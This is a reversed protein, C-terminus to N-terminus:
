TGRYVGLWGLKDDDPTTAGPNGFIFINPGGGIPFALGLVRLAFNDLMLIYSATAGTGFMRLEYARAGVKVVGEVSFLDNGGGSVGPFKLWVQSRARAGPSWTLLMRITLGANAAFEGLTGLNLEFDLGYWLAPAIPEATMPASVPVYGEKRPGEGGANRSFSLMRMPFKAILSGARLPSSAPALDFTVRTTTFAFTPAGAVNNSDITFAMDIALGEFALRDYSLMDFDGSSGELKKFAIAGHLGFACAMRTGGNNPLATRNVAFDSKRIEVSEIVKGDLMFRKGGEELLFSYSAVGGRMERQGTLRIASSTAGTNGIVTTVREDFLQNITLDAGCKFEKLNGNDFWVRFERVAFGFPITAPPAAQTPVPQRYDILGFTSCDRPVVVGTAPDIELTSAEVAIHHAVFLADDVGARLVALEAPMQRGVNVNLALVGTWGPDDVLRMFRAYAPHEAARLGTQDIFDALRTALAALRGNGYRDFREANTWSKPKGIRQRISGPGFKFIVTNNLDRFDGAVLTTAAGAQFGNAAPDLEFTWDGMKVCMTADTYTGVLSEATTVVLFLSNSQFAAQLTPNLCVFGITTGAHNRALVLSTWAAGLMDLQMGQRTVAPASPIEPAEPLEGGNGLIEGILRRRWPAVIEGEFRALFTARWERPIERPAAGALPVMPFCSEPTPLPLTAAIPEFLELIAGAPANFFPANEPQSFYVSGGTGTARIFSVWSTRYRDTLLTLDVDTGANFAGPGRTPSVIPFEPAFAPRGPVFVMRDGAAGNRPPRIEVSEVGSLGCLLKSPFEADGREYDLPIGADDILIVTFEGSPALYYCRDGGVSRLVEFVLRPPRAAGPCPALAVIEGTVTRFFTRLYEQRPPTTVAYYCDGCGNPELIISQGLFELYSREPELPALPNWLMRFLVLRDDRLDFIPYFQHAEAAGIAAVYHLGVNWSTSATSYLDGIMGIGEFAGPEAGALWLFLAHDRDGAADPADPPCREPLPTPPMFSFRIDELGFPELPPIVTYDVVMGVGIPLHYGGFDIIVESVVVVPDPPPDDSPDVPPPDGSPPLEGSSGGEPPDEAGGPDSPLSRTRVCAIPLATAEDTIDGPIYAIWLFSTHEIYYDSGEANAGLLRGIADAVDPLESEPLTGAYSRVFLYYGVRTAWSSELTLEEDGGAVDYFGVFGDEGVWELRYLPTDGIQTFTSMSTTTTTSLSQPQPARAPRADRRLLMAPVM